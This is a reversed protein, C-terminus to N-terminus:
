AARKQRMRAEWLFREIAELGDDSIYFEAYPAGNPYKGEIGTPFLWGKKVLVLDTSSSYKDSIHAFKHEGWIAALRKAQALTPVPKKAM